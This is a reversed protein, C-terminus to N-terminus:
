DDGDDGGWSDFDSDNLPYSTESHFSFWSGQNARNIVVAGLILSIVGELVSDHLILYLGGILILAGTIRQIM